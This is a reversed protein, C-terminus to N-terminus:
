VCGLLKKVGMLADTINPSSVTDAGWRFMSLVDSSTPRLSAVEYKLGELCPLNDGVQFDYSGGSLVCTSTKIKEIGAKKVISSVVNIEEVSLLDFDAVMILPIKGAKKKLKRWEKVIQHPSKASLESIELPLEIGAVKRKVANSIAKLKFKQIEAGFPYFLAVRVKIKDGAFRKADLLKSPLVTVSELGLDIANKILGNLLETGMRVDIALLNIRKFLKSAKYANFEGTLREESVGFLKATEYIPPPTPEEPSDSNGSESESLNGDTESVSQEETKSVSEAKDANEFGEESIVETTNEVAKESDIVSDSGLDKEPYDSFKPTDNTIEKKVIVKKETEKELDKPKTKRRFFM